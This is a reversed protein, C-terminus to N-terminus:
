MERNSGRAFNVHGSPQLSEPYLPEVDVYLERLLEITRDIYPKGQSTIDIVTYSEIQDDYLESLKDTDYILIPDINILPLIIVRIMSKKIGWGVLTRKNLLDVQCRAHISFLYKRAFYSNVRILNVYETQGFDAGINEIMYAIGYARAFTASVERLAKASALDGAIVQKETGCEVKVREYHKTSCKNCWMLANEYKYIPSIIVQKSYHGVIHLVIEPPINM